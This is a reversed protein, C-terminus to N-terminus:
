YRVVVRSPGGVGLGHWNGVWCNDGYREHGLELKAPAQRHPIVAVEEPQL